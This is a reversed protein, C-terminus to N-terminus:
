AELVASRPHVDGIEQPSLLACTPRRYAVVHAMGVVSSTCVEERGDPPKIMLADPVLVIELFRLRSLTRAARELFVKTVGMHIYVTLSVPNSHKFIQLLQDEAEELNSLLYRARDVNFVIELQKVPCFIKLQYITWADSRLFELLRWCVNNKRTDPAQHPDFDNAFWLLHRVSIGELFVQQINPWNRYPTEAGMGLNVGGRPDTCQVRCLMKGFRSPSGFRGRGRTDISITRLWRLVGLSRLSDASAYLLHVGSLRRCSRALVNGIMPNAKVLVDFDVVDLKYLNIAQSLVYTLMCIARKPSGDAQSGGDGIWPMFTTLDCIQLIRLDHCHNVSRGSTDRTKVMWRCFSLIMTALSMADKGKLVVSRAMFPATLQKTMRCTAAFKALDDNSLCELIEAQVDYNVELLRSKMAMTGSVPPVCAAKAIYPLHPQLQAALKLRARTSVERWVRGRDPSIETLQREGGATTKVEYWFSKSNEVVPMLCLFQLAPIGQALKLAMDETFPAAEGTLAFVSLFTVQVGALGGCLASRPFVHGSAPNLLLDDRTLCIDLFNLRPCAHVMREFFKSRALTPVCVSLVVPSTRQLIQMLCAEYLQASMKVASGQLDPFRLELRRVPCYLGQHPITLIDSHLFDLSQWNAGDGTPKLPTHRIYGETWTVRRVKPFLISLVAAPIVVGQLAIERTEHFYPTVKAKRSNGEGSMRVLKLDTLVYWLTLKDTTGQIARLSVSRLRKNLKLLLRLARLGTRSDLINITSLSRCSQLLTDELGACVKLLVEFGSVNLTQLNKAQSLTLTLLSM